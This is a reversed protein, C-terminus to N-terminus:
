ETKKESDFILLEPSWAPTCTVILRLEKNKSPNKISHRENPLIVVSDGKKMLQEVGNIKMIGEGDVVYYVEEMIHHHEVVEVGAPIIIDAISLKQARSNRPSIFERAVAKDEATYWKQTEINVVGLPNTDEVNNKLSINEQEAATLNNNLLATMIIM